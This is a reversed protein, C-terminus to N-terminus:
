FIYRIVCTTLFDGEEPNFFLTIKGCLNGEWKTSNNLYAPMNPTLSAIIVGLLPEPVFQKGCYLSQTQKEYAGVHHFGIGKKNFRILGPVRVVYVLKRRFFSTM